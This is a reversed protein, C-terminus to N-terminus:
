QTDKAFNCLTNYVFFFFFFFFFRASAFLCCDLVGLDFM